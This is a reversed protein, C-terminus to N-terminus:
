WNRAVYTTHKLANRRFWSFPKPQSHPLTCLRSHGPLDQHDPQECLWGLPGSVAWTCSFAVGPLVVCTKNGNRTLGPFTSNGRLRTDLIGLHVCDQLGRAVSHVPCARGRKRDLKPSQRCNGPLYSPRFSLRISQSKM